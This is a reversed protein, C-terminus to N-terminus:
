LCVKRKLIHDRGFMSFELQWRKWIVDRQKIILWWCSSNLWRPWLRIVIGNSCEISSPQLDMRTWCGFWCDISIRHGILIRPYNPQKYLNNWIYIRIEFGFLFFYAPVHDEAGHYWSQNAKMSILHKLASIIKLFWRYSM